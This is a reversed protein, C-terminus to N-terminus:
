AFELMRPLCRMSAPGVIRARIYVSRPGTVCTVSNPLPLTTVVAAASYPPTVSAAATNWVDVAPVVTVLVPTCIGIRNGHGVAARAQEYVGRRRNVYDSAIGTDLLYRTM